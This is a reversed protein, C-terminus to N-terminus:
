FGRRVWRILFLVFYVAGWALPVPIFAVAAANIREYRDAKELYAYANLACQETNDPHGEDCSVHTAAALEIDAKEAKDYTYAGAGFV